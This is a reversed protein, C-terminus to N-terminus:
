AHFHAKAGILHVNAACFHSAVTVSERIDQLREDETLEDRMAGTNVGKGMLVALLM